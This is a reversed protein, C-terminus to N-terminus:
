FYKPNYILGVDIGREDPSDYHVIKYHRSKLKPENILDQMVGENEVEACGMLSLGDPSSETGIQSIVDSLKDLKDHYVAQTYHNAGNPLFEEDKNPDDTTNFLNELNYFGIVGIKYKREQAASIFAASVFAASLTLSLLVNRPHLTM